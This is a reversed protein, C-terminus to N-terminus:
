NAGALHSLGFRRGKKFAVTNLEDDGFSIGGPKLSDDHVEIGVYLIGPTGERTLYFFTATAFPKVESTAADFHLLLDQENIRGENKLSDISTQKLDAKWRSKPLEWSHLDIPRLVFVVKENEGKIEDGMMDYGEKAAWDRIKQLKDDSLNDDRWRKPMSAVRGTDLDYFVNRSLPRRVSELIWNGTGGDTKLQTNGLTSETPPLVPLPLLNVEHFAADDTLEQGHQQWWQAWREAVQHFLVSKAHKQSPFDNDNLFIHFIEEEGFGEGTLSHLAGFLERVPRGFGYENGENRSELDHQQMFRTLAEDTGDVGLGMDSGPRRLTKPISRILGPVARKDDIARLIFGLCRLMADSSTRDLEDVLQPVADRGLAVIKRLQNAWADSYKDPGTNMDELDTLLDGVPTDKRLTAAEPQSPTGARNEAERRAEDRIRSGLLADPDAVFSPEETSGIVFNHEVTQGDGVQLYVPAANGSMLYVYNRGPAVRLRYTGNANVKTSTAAAGTRPRAPGYHAVFLETQSGEVPRNTAPDIIKGVVVGGRPMRIDMGMLRRGQEAKLAKIALPMREPAVAWINYHDNTMRLQYKGNADAKTTFWGHGVIGQAQVEVNSLPEGSVLDVVQGEVIAPPLLTIDVQQPIQSYTGQTIPYDPHTVSIPGGSVVSVIGRDPSITQTDKWNWPALDAINYRGHSDTKAMLVGPIPHEVCQTSIVADAIPSGNADTITGSLSATTSKMALDIESENSQSLNRILSAFGPKAVALVLRGEKGLHPVEKLSFRGNSDITTEDKLKPKANWAPYFYLKVKAGAEGIGSISDYVVPAQAQSRSVSVAGLLFMALAACSVIGGAQRRNLGNSAANRGVAEIRRLVQSRRAMSLAAVSSKGTVRLALTALVRRYLEIDGLYGAAKADCLEDCADAHAVRIRWILPHFWLLAQLLILLHNWRLDNAQSHALEHALSARLEQRESLECQRTPILIRTRWAGVNCPSHIEHSHRVDIPGSHGLTAAIASAQTQVEAPATSARRYLSLLGFAGVLWTSSIFAVGMAWATVACGFLSPTRSSAERAASLWSEVTANWKRNDSKVVPTSTAEERLTREASQQDPLTAAAPPSHSQPPVATAGGAQSLGTTNGNAGTQGADLGMDGDAAAPLLPLKLRYPTQSLGFVVILGIASTRWVLIRFRPNRRSWAFHCVWAFMLIFTIRVLTLLINHQPGVGGDVLWNLASSM